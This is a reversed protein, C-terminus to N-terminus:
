ALEAQFEGIAQIPVDGNGGTVASSLSIQNKLRVALRNLADVAENKPHAEDRYGANKRPPISAKSAKRLRLRHREKIDYAGDCSVHHLRRRLPNLLMPLVENDAGNELTVEATIVWHISADHQSVGGRKRTVRVALCEVRFADLTRIM